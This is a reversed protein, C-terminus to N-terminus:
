EDVLTMDYILKVYILTMCQINYEFVTCHSQGVIELFPANIERHISLIILDLRRCPENNTM